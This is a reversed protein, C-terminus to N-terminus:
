GQHSRELTTQFCAQCQWRGQLHYHEVITPSDRLDELQNLVQRLNRSRLSRWRHFHYHRGQGIADQNLAADPLNHYIGWCSHLSLVPLFRSIFDNWAHTINLRNAMISLIFWICPSSHSGHVWVRCPHSQTYHDSSVDWVVHCLHAWVLSHHVDLLYM